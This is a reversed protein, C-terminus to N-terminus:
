AIQLSIEWGMKSSRWTFVIMGFQSPSCIFLTSVLVLRTMYGQRGM